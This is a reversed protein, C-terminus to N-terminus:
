SPCGEAILVTIPTERRLQVQADLERQYAVLEQVTMATFNLRLSAAM